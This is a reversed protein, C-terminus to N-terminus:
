AKLTQGLLWMAARFEVKRQAKGLCMEQLWPFDQLGSKGKPPDLSNPYLLTEVREEERICGLVTGKLATPMPNQTITLELDSELYM